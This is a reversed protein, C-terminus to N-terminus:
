YERRVAHVSLQIIIKLFAAGVVGAKNTANRIDAQVALAAGDGAGTGGFRAPFQATVDAFTFVVPM